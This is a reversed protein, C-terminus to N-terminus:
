EEGHYVQLAFYNLIAVIESDPINEYYVCVIKQIQQKIKVLDPHLFNDQTVDSYASNCAFRNAMLLCHLMLGSEAQPSLYNGLQEKLALMVNFGKNIVEETFREMYRMDEYSEPMKIKEGCAAPKVKTNVKFDTLVSQIKKVDEAQLLANVVICPKDVQIPLVSIILDIPNHAIVAKAQLVSCCGMIQLAEFRNKLQKMLLKASSVGTSCVVLTRISEKGFLTEYSLQFYLVIYAIEEDHLYINYEGFFDCCVQKVVHFLEKFRLLIDDMMPNANVMHYQKKQFTRKLHLWLNEYLEGDASFPIKTVQSTKQIIQRTIKEIDVDASVTIEKSFPLFIWHCEDTFIAPSIERYVGHLAEALFNYLPDQSLETGAIPGMYFERRLQHRVICMRIFVSVSDKDETNRSLQQLKRLIQQFAECVPKVEAELLLYRCLLKRFDAPLAAEQLEQLINEVSRTDMLRLIFYEIAQRRKMETTNLRFGWHAKRDLYINWIGLMEAVSEIDRSITNKSVKLEEAFYQITIYDTHTLLTLIIHRIRETSFILTKEHEKLLRSKMEEFSKESGSLWFGQKAKYLLQVELKEEQLWDRIKNIDYKISRESVQYKEILHNKSVTEGLHSIDNLIKCCRITLM